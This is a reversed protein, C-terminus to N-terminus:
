DQRYITENFKHFNKTFFYPLIKKVNQLPIGKFLSTNSLSYSQEDFQKTFYKKFFRSYTEGAKLSILTATSHSIVSYLNHKPSNLTEANLITGQQAM